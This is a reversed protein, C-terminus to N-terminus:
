KQIPHENLYFSKADMKFVAWGGPYHHDFVDWDGSVSERIITNMLDRNARYLYFMVAWSLTYNKSSSKGYFDSADMPDTIHAKETSLFYQTDRVKTAQMPGFFYASDKKIVDEFFESLGETLWREANNGYYDLIAHSLEHSFVRPFDTVETHLIMENRNADYYAIADSLVPARKRDQQSYNLFEKETGFVRARFKNQTSDGFVESYFKLQFFFSNQIHAMVEPSLKCNQLIIRVEQSHLNTSTISMMAVFCFIIKNM